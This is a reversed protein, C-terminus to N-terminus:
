SQERDTIIKLVIIAVGIGRLMLQTNPTPAWDASIAQLGTLANIIDPAVIVLAGVTKTKIGAIKDRWSAPLLNEYAYIAAIAIAALVVWILITEGIAIMNSM